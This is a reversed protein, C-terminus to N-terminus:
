YCDWWYIAKCFDRNELDKKKIFFHAVGGDGWMIDDQSDIQLLNILEDDYDDDERIDNQTFFPHGFMKHGEDCLQDYISSEERDSIYTYKEDSTEQYLQANVENMLDEFKGESCNIYDTDDEFEVAYEYEIPFYDEDRDSTGIGRDVVEAETVTEDIDEWYYVVYGNEEEFGAMVDRSALFQLLGKEPLGKFEHEALNIQALLLLKNGDQDEPYEEYRSWYPIGGFKSVTLPLSDQQKLRIRVTDVASLQKMREVILKVKEEDFREDKEKKMGIKKRAVIIGLVYLLGVIIMEIFLILTVTWEKGTKSDLIYTNIFHAAAVFFTAAIFSNKRDTLLTIMLSIISMIVSIWLLIMRFTRGEGTWYFSRGIDAFLVVTSIALLLASLGDRKKKM